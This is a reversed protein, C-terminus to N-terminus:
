KGKKSKKAVTKKKVIANKKEGPQLRNIQASAVPINQKPRNDISPKFSNGAKRRSFCPQCYVPRDGSPKFPVKCEKRCDACIAKYMTRERFHENQRQARAHASAQQQFPKQATFPRVPEVPKPTTAAKTILMDVKKDLLVLQQHIKAIFELVNTDNKSSKKM